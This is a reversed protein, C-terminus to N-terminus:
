KKYQNFKKRFDVYLKKNFNKIIKEIFSEIDYFKVGFNSATLQARKDILILIVDRSYSLSIADIEGPYKKFKGKIYNKAADKNIHRRIVQYNFKKEEDTLEVITIKGEYKQIENRKLHHILEYFLNHTMIIEFNDFILDSMKFLRILIFADTDIVISKRSKKKSM